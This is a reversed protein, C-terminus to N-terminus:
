EMFGQLEGHYREKKEGLGIGSDQIIQMIKRYRLYNREQYILQREITITTIDEIELDITNALIQECEPYWTKEWEEYNTRLATKGTDSIDVLSDRFDNIIKIREEPDISNLYRDRCIRWGDQLAYYDRKDYRKRESM